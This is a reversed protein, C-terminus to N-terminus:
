WQIYLEVREPNSYAIEALVRDVAEIDTLHVLGANFVRLM